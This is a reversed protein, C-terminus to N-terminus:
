RCETELLDKELQKFRAVHEVWAEDGLIFYIEYTPSPGETLTLQCAKKAADHACYWTYVPSNGNRKTEDPQGYRRKIEDAPEIVGIHGWCRLKGVVDGWYDVNCSIANPGAGLVTVGQGFLLKLRPANPDELQGQKKIAGSFRKCNEDYGNKTWAIRAERNAERSRFLEVVRKASMNNGLGLASFDSPTALGGPATPSAAPLASPTRGVVDPKAPQASAQNSLPAPRPKSANASAQKRELQALVLKVERDGPQKELVKELDARGHSFDGGAVYLTGRLRLASILDDEPYVGGRGWKWTSQPSALVNQDLEIARTLDAIAADYKQQWHYAWARKYLALARVADHENEALIQTCAKVKGDLDSHVAICYGWIDTTKAGLACPRVFGVLAALLAFAALTRSM